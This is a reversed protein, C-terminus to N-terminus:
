QNKELMSLYNKIDIYQDPINKTSKNIPVFKKFKNCYKCEVILDEGKNIKDFLKFLNKQKQLSAIRAHGFVKRNKNIFSILRFIGQETKEIIFNFTNKNINKNINQVNNKNMLNKISIEKIPTKKIKFNSNTSSKSDYSKSSKSDSSESSKSIKSKFKNKFNKLLLIDSKNPLISNFMIGNVKYKLNPVFDNILNDIKDYGFYKKVQFNCVDMIEDKKYKQNLLEYIIKIKKFKNYRYTKKGCYSVIDNFMFIWNNEFDKILEGHLLTDKFIDDKFRYKTYIVRPFSYGKCIKRDIFFCFNENYDNKTMYLFYRNGRTNTSLLYNQSILHSINDKNCIKCSNDTVIINYKKFIKEFLKTKFDENRVNFAFKDCFTIPAINM